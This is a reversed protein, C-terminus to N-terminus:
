GGADGDWNWILERKAEMHPWVKSVEFDMSEFPSNPAKMSNNNQLLNKHIVTMDSVFILYFNFYVSATELRTNMNAIKQNIVTCLTIFTLIM